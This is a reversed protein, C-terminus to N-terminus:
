TPQPTTNTMPPFPFFSLVTEHELKQKPLQFLLAIARFLIKLPVVVIKCLLFVTDKKKDRLVSYSKKYNHDKRTQSCNNQFM